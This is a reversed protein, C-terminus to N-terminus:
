MNQVQTMATNAAINALSNVGDLETITELISIATDTDYQSGSAGIESSANDILEKAKKEGITDSLQDVLEKEEIM